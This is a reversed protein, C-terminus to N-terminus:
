KSDIYNKITLTTELGQLSNHINSLPEEDNTIANLFDKLEDEFMTNREWASEVKSIEEIEGSITLKAINQYYDWEINGHEGVIKMTRSPPNQLYDIHIHIIANNLTKLTASVYDEVNTGLSPSNGGQAYILELDGFIWTLYDIDHIQTLAVGGGLERKAAYSDKHDEWPHWLPLYEGANVNIHIIEGISKDSIWKKIDLLNPHFRMQYGLAVKVEKENILNLLKSLSNLSNSLPKEIFVHSNHEIAKLAYDMHMSTPNCIFVVDYHDELAIDFDNYISIESLDLEPYTKSTTRVIGLQTIGLKRLNQYHRYGISGLGVILIKLNTINKLNNIM